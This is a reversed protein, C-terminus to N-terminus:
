KNFKVIDASITVKATRVFLIITNKKDVSINAYAEGERLPFNYMMEKKAEAVMATRDLGGFGFIYTATAAGNAQGKIIYNNSSLAVSNNIYGNHLACSSLLTSLVVFLLYVKKM